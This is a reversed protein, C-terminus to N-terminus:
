KVIDEIKDYVSFVSKVQNQGPLTYKIVGDITWVKGFKKSKVMSNFLKHTDATLDEVLLLKPLGVGMGTTLIKKHKLLAAKITKNPVKFIIPPPPKDQEAHYPRFCTEIVSNLQPLTPLDKETKAAALAPRLLEYLRSKLDDKEGVSVPLNLLRLTLNRQQQQLTNNVNKLSKTEAELATIRDDHQLIDFKILKVQEEIAEVSKSVKDLKASMPTLTNLIEDIKNDLTRQAM